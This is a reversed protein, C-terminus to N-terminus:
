CSRSKCGGKWKYHSLTDDTFVGRREVKLGLKGNWTYFDSHILELLRLWFFGQAPLEILAM